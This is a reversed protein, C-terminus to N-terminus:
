VLQFGIIMAITLTGAAHFWFSASEFYPQGGAGSVRDAKKRDSNSSASETASASAGSPVESESVATSGEAGVAEAANTSQPKPKATTPTSSAKQPVDAVPVAPAIPTVVTSNLEAPMPSGSSNRANTAATANSLAIPFNPNRSRASRFTLVYTDRWVRNSRPVYQQVICPELCGEAVKGNSACEKNCDLSMQLEQERTSQSSTLM